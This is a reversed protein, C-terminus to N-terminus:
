RWRRARGRAEGLGGLWREELGKWSWCSGGLRRWRERSSSECVFVRALEEFWCRREVALLLEVASEYHPPISPLLVAPIAEIQSPTLDPPFHTALRWSRRRTQLNEKVRWTRSQADFPSQYTLQPPWWKWPSCPASPRGRVAALESRAQPSRAPVEQVVKEVVEGEEAIRAWGRM